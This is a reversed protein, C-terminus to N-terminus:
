RLPALQAGITLALIALQQQKATQLGRRPSAAAPPQALRSRASATLKFQWDACLLLLLLLLPQSLLLLCCNALHALSRISLPLLPLAQRTTTAAKPCGSAREPGINNNNGSSSNYNDTEM